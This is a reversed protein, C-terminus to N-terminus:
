SNQRQIKIIRISTDPTEYFGLSAGYVGAPCNIEVSEFYDNDVLAHTSPFLLFGKDSCTVTQKTDSFFSYPLSEVLERYSLNEREEKAPLFLWTLAYGGTFTDSAVWYMTPIEEGFILAEGPGIQITSVYENAADCARDYDIHPGNPSNLYFDAEIIRGNSPENIGEWYEAIEVPCLLIPVSSNEACVFPLNEDM